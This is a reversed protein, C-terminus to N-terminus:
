ATLLAPFALRNSQEDMVGEKVLQQNEAWIRFTSVITRAAIDFFASTILQPGMEHKVMPTFTHFVTVIHFVASQLILARLM